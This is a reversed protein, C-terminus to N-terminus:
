QPRPQVQGKSKSQEADQQAKLKQVIEREHDGERQRRECEPQQVSRARAEREGRALGARPERAADVAPREHRAGRRVRQGAQGLARV